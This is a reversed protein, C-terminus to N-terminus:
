SEYYILLVIVPLSLLFFDWCGVEIHSTKREMPLDLRGNLVFYSDATTVTM